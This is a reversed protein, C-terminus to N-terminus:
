RSAGSPMYRRGRTSPLPSRIRTAILEEGDRIVMIKFYPYRVLAEEAADFLAKPDVTEKVNTEIRITFPMEETCIYFMPDYYNNKM